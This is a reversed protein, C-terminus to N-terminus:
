RKRYIFWYVLPIFFLSIITGPVMAGIMAVSMPQQLQSGMDTTFLQPVMVLVTTLSTMIIARIRRKGATHIADNLNVGKERLKNMSDIKLISDNVVIGCSVIIGIASMLNLSFGCAWLTLLAFFADIPIECLVILPQLFSEFQAALIFYMLMVSIFLIVMLEKLMKKNNFFGGKFRVEYNTNKKVAMRVDDILKESNDVNHFELPIYEGDMGSSITKLDLEKTIHILQSLPIYEGGGNTGTTKVMASYIAEELEKKSSALVIPLYKQNSKLISIKKDEFAKTISKYIEKYSINYTLIKKQDLEIEYQKRFPVEAIDEKSHSEINEVIEKLEKPNIKGHKENLMAIIDAEGTSFIKEFITAPPMFTYSARPYDKKIEKRILEEMDPLQKYDEVKVYMEAETNSLRADNQAIYDQKGVYASLDEARKNIVEVLSEVRKYNDELSIPENWEIGVIMENQDIQPMKEKDILMAMVVSLPICLVGGVLCLTKHAFTWESVKDYWRVIRETHKNQREKTKNSQKRKFIVVFLVPLLIIATFYTVFIGASISFAQDSFIAGAIGSMFVLPMFVAVTTLSSSLIPTIMETAGKQTAELISYGRDVYQTINETVIISNDVMMGVALILGSISIVNLSVKFIYFLLFTIVISVVMSIAIIIPIRIDKIFFMATLFIFIFALFFNLQLNSMTFDLLETQNRSIEINIDPYQQSLEESLQSIKDKFNTMNEDSHKIVALTIARNGRSMSRGAEQDSTLDVDAIERLQMIRGNHIFNVAKIDAINSLPSSMKIHYEYHGQRVSMSGFEINASSIMRELEDTTLGLTNMVDYKPTIAIQQSPIGTVDVMAVEPLQEIRRRIINEAVDCVDLFSNVKGEHGEKMSINLFFVPIDTSSAKYVNPRSIDKPLVSMAADIKENTEIFALDTKTGFKFKMEINAWGDTTRCTIDELGDVQVLSRRLPTVITKEIERATKGQESINVTIEPIDINPLLSIPLTFFTTLGVIFLAIFTMIVSIPRETLFKLM